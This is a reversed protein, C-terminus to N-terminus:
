WPSGRWRCPWWGSSLLAPRMVPLWVGVPVVALCRILPMMTPLGPVGPWAEGAVDKVWGGDVSVTGAEAALHFEIWSNFEKHRPVAIGWRLGRASAMRLAFPPIFMSRIEHQSVNANLANVEQAHVAECIMRLLDGRSVLV